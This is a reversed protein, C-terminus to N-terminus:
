HKGKTKKPLFPKVFDHRLAADASIRKDPDLALMKELLDALASVKPHVLSPHSTLPPPPSVSPQNPPLLATVPDLTLVACCGFGDGRCEWCGWWEWWWWWEWCM